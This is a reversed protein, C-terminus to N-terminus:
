FSKFVRVGLERPPAVYARRVALSGAFLAYSYQTDLLNKAYVGIGWDNDIGRLQIQGNVLHYAPIALNPDLAQIGGITAYVPTRARWAWSLTTDLALTGSVPVVHNAILSFSKKPIGPLERGEGSVDVIENGLAPNAPNIPRTDKMLRTKILGASGTLTLQDTVRASMEFELGRSRTEVGNLTINRIIGTTPDAFVSSVQRDTYDLQYLALNARVRGGLLDLKAGVEYNKAKEPNFSAAALSSQSLRINVGGSHFGQSYTAYLMLEEIPKSSLTVSPLVNDYSDKFQANDRAADITTPTVGFPVIATNVLVPGLRPDIYVNAAQGTFRKKETSYRIGGNLSLWDAFRYTANAFVAFSTTDVRQREAAVSTWTAPSSAPPVVFGDLGGLGLFGAGILPNHATNLAQTFSYRSKDKFFFAGVLWELRSDSRSFLQLEQTFQTGHNTVANNGLEVNSADLDTLARSRDDRFGTISRFGIKDMTWDFQANLGFVDSDAFNALDNGFEYYGGPEIAGLPRLDFRDARDQGIGIGKQAQGDDRQRDYDVRLLLEKGDDITGLISGRVSFHDVKGYDRGTAINKMYGSESLQQVAIRGLLGDGAIPGSAIAQAMVHGYTGAEGQFRFEPTATPRKSIINISGGISNRGYLTGQPGRLVEIREVDLYAANLSTLRSVYVGDIHLATSPEVGVGLVGSGAGRITITNENGNGKEILLGPILYQTEFLDPVSTKELQDGSIAAASIPVDSLTEERKRATVVIDDQNGLGNTDAATQAVASGTWLAPLVAAALWLSKRFLIKRSYGFSDSRDTMGIGKEGM